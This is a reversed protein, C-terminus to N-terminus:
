GCEVFHFTAVTTIKESMVDWIPQATASVLKLKQRLLPGVIVNNGHVIWKWVDLAQKLGYTWQWKM